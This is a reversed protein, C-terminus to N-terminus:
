ENEEMFLYKISSSKGSGSKGAVIIPSPVFGPNNAMDYYEYISGLVFALNNQIYRDHFMGDPSKATNRGDTNVCFQYGAPHEKLPNFHTFLCITFYSEVRGELKKGDVKVVVRDVAQSDQVIEDLATYIIFRGNSKWQMLLRELEDAYDRWFDFGRIKNSKLWESLLYLIRTFSDVVVVRIPEYFERKDPYKSLDLQGTGAKLATEFQKWSDVTIAKVRSAQRFPLTKRETDIILVEEPKFKLEHTDKLYIM